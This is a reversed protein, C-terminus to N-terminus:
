GNTKELHITVQTDSVLISPSLLRIRYRHWTPSTLDGSNGTLTLSVVNPTGSPFLYPNNIDGDIVVEISAGAPLAPVTTVKLNYTRDLSSASMAYLVEGRSNNPYYDAVQEVNADDLFYRKIKVAGSMSLTFSPLPTVLSDLDSGWNLTYKPLIANAATTWPVNFKACLPTLTGDQFFTKLDSTESGSKDEQLRALQTYLSVCDTAVTNTGSTMTPPNGSYLRNLYSATMDPWNAVTGPSTIKGNILALEWTLATITPASFPGIQSPTLAGLDRIDRVTSYRNSGTGAPLYPHELLTVAYADGFGEVLALDPALSTAPYGTPIISTNGQSIIANRGMLAYLIGTDFADDPQLVGDITGGASISGMYHYYTGDYSKPLLSPRWEVFTGRRASVGPRYHLDLEVTSKTPVANGFNDNFEYFSDLIATIRSGAAVTEPYTLTAPDVYPTWWTPHVVMWKDTLGVNFDVVADATGVASITANTESTSGDLSKRTVYIPRDVIQKTSYVGDPDAILVISSSPSSQTMAGVVEVFTKYTKSVGTISYLGDSDTTAQGVLTWADRTTYDLLTQPRLQFVRVKLSRAKETTFKTADTELGTPVGNADYHIPVKTYTVTGTIKFDSSEAAKEALSKKACGLGTAVVVAALLMAACARLGFNRVVMIVEYLRAFALGLMAFGFM